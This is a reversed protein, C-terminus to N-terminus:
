NFQAAIMFSDQRDPVEPSSLIIEGKLHELLKGMQTETWVHYHIHGNRVIWPFDWSGDEKQAEKKWGHDFQPISYQEFEKWHTQDLHNVKNEYDLIHHELTSFLRGKDFTRGGHPLVILLKGGPKLVRIWEKLVKITDPVHELCHASFIYDFTNEKIPIRVTDATLFTREGVMDRTPYKDLYITSGVKTYSTDGPGIELGFGRCYKEVMKQTFPIPPSFLRRKIPRLINKIVKPLV